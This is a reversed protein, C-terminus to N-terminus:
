LYNYPAHKKINKEVRQAHEVPMAEYAYYAIRPRLNAKTPHANLDDKEHYSQIRHRLNHAHGVYLLRRNQDYFEYVGSKSPVKPKLTNKHTFRLMCNGQIFTNLYIDCLIKKGFFKYVILIIM